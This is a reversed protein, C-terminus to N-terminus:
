RNIIGSFPFSRSLRNRGARQLALFRNTTAPFYTNQGKVERATLILARNSSDIYNSVMNWLIFLEILAGKSKLGIVGPKWISFSTEAKGDLKIVVDRWLSDNLEEQVQDLISWLRNTAEAAHKKAHKYSDIEARLETVRHLLPRLSALRAVSSSIDRTISQLRVCVTQVIDDAYLQQQRLIGYRDPTKHVERQIRQLCSVRNTIQEVAQKLVTIEFEPVLVESYGPLHLVIEPIHVYRWSNLNQYPRWARAFSRAVTGLKTLEVRMRASEVRSTRRRSHKHLVKQATGSRKKPGSAIIHYISNSIMRYYEPNRPHEPHSAFLVLRGKGFSSEVIAAAGDLMQVAEDLPMEFHTDRPLLDPAFEAIARAPRGIRKVIPGNAFVIGPALVDPYGAVIPSIPKRVRLPVPTSVAVPVVESYEKLDVHYRHDKAWEDHPYSNRSRNRSCEYSVLELYKAKNTAPSGYTTGNADGALDLGGCSGIYGGGREVFRRVEARGEPWLAAAQITEDGGPQVYIDYERLKGSAIESPFLCDPNFGMANLCEVYWLYADWTGSGAYVAIRPARLPQTPVQSEELLQHLVVGRRAALEKVLSGSSGKELSDTSDLAVLWGCSYEHGKPFAKTRIFFPQNFWAVPINLRLLSNVFRLTVFQKRLRAGLPVLLAGNRTSDVVTPLSLM